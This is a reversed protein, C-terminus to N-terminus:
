CSLVSSTRFVFWSDELSVKANELKDFEEDSLKRKVENTYDGIERRDENPDKM